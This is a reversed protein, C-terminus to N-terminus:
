GWALEIALALIFFPVAYLVLNMRTGSVPRSPNQDL